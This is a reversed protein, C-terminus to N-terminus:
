TSCRHNVSLPEFVNRSFAKPSAFPIQVTGSLRGTIPYVTVDKLMTTGGAVNPAATEDPRALRGRHVVRLTRLSPGGLLHFRM